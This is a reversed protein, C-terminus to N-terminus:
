MWKQDRRLFTEALGLVDLGKASKIVDIKCRRVERSWWGRCNFFGVSIGGEVQIVGKGRCGGVRGHSLHLTNSNGVPRYYM